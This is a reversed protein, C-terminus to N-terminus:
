FFAPRTAQDFVLAAKATLVVDVSQGTFAPPRLSQADSIGAVQQDTATENLLYERLCDRTAGNGALVCSVAIIATSLFSM